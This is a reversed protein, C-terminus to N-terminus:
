WAHNLGMTSGLIVVKCKMGYSHARTFCPHNWIEFWQWPTSWMATWVNFSECLSAWYISNGTNPESTDDFLLLLSFCNKNQFIYRRKSSGSTFNAPRVCAADPIVAIVGIPARPLVPELHGDTPWSLPFVDIAQRLLFTVLWQSWFTGRKQHKIGKLRFLWVCADRHCSRMGTKEFIPKTLIRLSLYFADKRQDAKHHLLIWKM